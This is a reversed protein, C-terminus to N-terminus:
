AADGREQLYISCEDLAAVAASTILQRNTDSLINPFGPEDIRWDEVTETNTTDPSPISLIPESDWSGDPNQLSDLTEIVERAEQKSSTGTLLNTRVAHSISFVCLEGTIPSYWDNEDFETYQALRTIAEETVETAVSSDNLKTLYQALIYAPYTKTTWWYTENNAFTDLMNQVVQQYDSPVTHKSELFCSCVLPSVDIHPGIWGELMDSDNINLATSLTSNTYTKFSKEQNDWHDELFNMCPNISSNWEESPLVRKLGLISNATSDADAPFGKKYGVSGRDEIEQILISSAEKALTDSLLHGVERLIFGTVWTDSKGQSSKFASWQNHKRCEKEIFEVGADIQQRSKKDFTTTKSM